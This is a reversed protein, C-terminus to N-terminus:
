RSEDTDGKEKSEVDTRKDKKAYRKEAKQDAAELRDDMKGDPTSILGGYIAQQVLVSQAVDEPIEGIFDKAIRYSSGDARRVMFNRKSVIFM